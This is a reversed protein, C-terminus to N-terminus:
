VKIPMIVFKAGPHDASRILIPSSSNKLEISAMSSGLVNLADLIYRPNFGICIEEGDYSTIDDMLIVEDGVGRNDGYAHIELKDKDCIVKVARFKDITVTSIRDIAAFLLDARVVLTYPNDLPIFAEYEPFSGDILKSILTTHHCSFKVKSQGIQINLNKDLFNADKLTKLLEQVTKRPLIIGFAGPSKELDIQSISLRHVDTAAACLTKENAAHVHLYIGNLNYRTEEGSMAFKTHDLIELFSKVPLSIEKFLGIDEMVPFENVPLTFLSFQCNQSSIYLQEKDEIFTLTIEPDSIKRAIESFTQAPVTIAGEERVQVPLTQQISLEMDTATVTLFNDKAELKINSLIALVNRKEVISASIALIKVLDKTNVIIDLSM